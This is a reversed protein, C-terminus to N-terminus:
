RVLVAWCSAVTQGRSDAVVMLRQETVATWAEEARGNTAEAAMEVVAEVAVLRRQVVRRDAAEVERALQQLQHRHIAHLVEAAAVERGEKRSHLAEAVM